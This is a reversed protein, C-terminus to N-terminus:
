RILKLTGAPRDDRFYRLLYVGSPLVNLNVVDNSVPITRLLRGQLDMVQASSIPADAAADILQFIGDASPNPYAIVNGTYGAPGDDIGTASGGYKITVMRYLFNNLFDDASEGTVIFNGQSDRSLCKLVDPNSQTTTTNAWVNEFQQVGSSNYGVLVYNFNLSTADILWGATVVRNNAEVLM